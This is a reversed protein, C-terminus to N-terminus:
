QLMVHVAHGERQVVSYLRRAPEALTGDEAIRANQLIHKPNRSSFVIVSSSNRLLSAKLMLAALTEPRALDAGVEGSWRHCVESGSRLTGLLSRFNATLARHHITFASIPAIPKDIVSWEFQLVPCYAPKEKLLQTIKDRSSGVGFTGLVGKRVSDEMFRLLDGDTLDDAEAEHLLWVDVRDSRLEKLSRQLSAKAEAATFNASREEPTAVTNAMNALGRKLGPMLKLVPGAVGRALNLLGQNRAPPIGYKTTVTVDARHRVLFEGLCGEAAGYGYMPAVDFHRIGADFAHELLALSERRGTAGMLSSCGYGLRSTTRGSSGLEIKDM